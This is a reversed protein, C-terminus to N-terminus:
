PEAWSFLRMADENSISTGIVLRARARATEGARLDRGFLSLYMSDHPETEYPTLVAFCDQPRAMVVGTLGEVPSRRVGLPRALDPLRVWDVPSPPYTWRGDRILQWASDDRPMAQWTGADRTATLMRAGGNPGKVCVLSNSFSEAFYSALFSEFGRLEAHAEVSTELELTNRASWRYVAGLEFPRDAAGPWRVSVSGDPMLKAQSPWDWAATGYRKNVTFVRYHSFLGMSRDLLTGTPSHVVASLGKSKGGARLHGRLLGTDFTFSNSGAARFALQAASDPRKLTDQALGQACGLLLCTSIATFVGAKM